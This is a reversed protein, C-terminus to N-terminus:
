MSELARNLGFRIVRMERETFRFQHLDGPKGHVVSVINKLAPGLPKGIKDRVEEIAERVDSANSGTSFEPDYSDSVPGPM